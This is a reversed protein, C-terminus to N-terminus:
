VEDDRIEAIEVSGSSSTDFDMAVRAAEEAIDRPSKDQKYLVSLAGEAHPAGSGIACYMPLSSVSLTEKVRFLGSATAVLFEAGVDAFPSPDDRDWRDNVMHYREGLDRWLKVFFRFVSTEDELLPVAEVSLYDALINYYVAFGAVGVLTRGTRIVKAHPAAPTTRTRGITTGTDWAVAIRGM